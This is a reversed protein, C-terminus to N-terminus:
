TRAPGIRIVIEGDIDTKKLPKVLGVVVNEITEKIFPNIPVEVGGTTVTVDRSEMSGGSLYREIFAGSEGPSFVSLGSAAALASLGREATVLADFGDLPAKLGELGTAGGAVLVRTAGEVVRGEILIVDASPFLSEVWARGWDPPTRSVRVTEEAAVLATEAGAAFFRSTDKGELNFSGGHRVCKVAAVGVGRASLAAACAEVFGTKGTNSWGIFSALRMAM